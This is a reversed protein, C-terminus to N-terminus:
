RAEIRDALKDYTAPGVLKYDRLDEPRKFPGNKTRYAIINQATAPGVGPLTDLESENASNIDVRGTAQGATGATAVAAAGEGRHPIVVQQEDDLRVALNVGELDADATTGGALRIADEVRANGDFTYVGPKLVAGTIFVKGGSPLATPEVLLVDSGNRMWAKYIL